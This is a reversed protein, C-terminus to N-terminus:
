FPSPSGMKRCCNSFILWVRIWCPPIIAKHTPLLTVKCRLAWQDGLFISFSISARFAATNPKIFFLGPHTSLLPRLTGFICKGVIGGAALAVIDVDFFWYLPVSVCLLHFELSNTGRIYSFDLFTERFIV